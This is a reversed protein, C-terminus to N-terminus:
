KIQQQSVTFHYNWDFKIVNKELANYFSMAMMDTGIKSASYPAHLKPRPAHPDM